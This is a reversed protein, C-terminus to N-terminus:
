SCISSEFEEMFGPLCVCFDGMNSKVRHNIDQDCTSCQNSLNGYCRYCTYHCKLCVGQDYYGPLCVCTTWSSM